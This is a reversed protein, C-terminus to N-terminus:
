LSIKRTSVQLDTDLAAALGESGRCGDDKHDVAGDRGLRLVDRDGARQGVARAVLLHRHDDHDILVVDRFLMVLRRDEVRQGIRWAQM